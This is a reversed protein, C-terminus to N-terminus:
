YTTMKKVSLHLMIEGSEFIINPDAGLDLLHGSIVGLM